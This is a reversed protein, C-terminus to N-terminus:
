KESEVRDIELHMQGPGPAAYSPLVTTLRVSMLDRTKIWHNGDESAWGNHLYLDHTLRASLTQDVGTALATGDVLMRMSIDKGAPLKYVFDGAAPKDPYTVVPLAALKEASPPSMNACGALALVSISLLFKSKM